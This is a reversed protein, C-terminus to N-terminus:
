PALMDHLVIPNTGGPKLDQVGKERLYQFTEVAGKKSIRISPCIHFDVSLNEACASGSRLQFLDSGDQRQCTQANGVNQQGQL